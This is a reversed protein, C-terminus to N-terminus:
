EGSSVFHSCQEPPIPWDRKDPPITQGEACKGDKLNACREECLAWAAPDKMISELRASRKEAPPNISECNATPVEEWLRKAFFNLPASIYKGGDVNWGDSARWAELAALVKEDFAAADPASGRLQMYLACCRAKANPKKYICNPYASWFKDFVGTESVAPSVSPVEQARPKAAEEFSEGVLGALENTLKKNSEKEIRKQTESHSQSPIVTLGEGARESVTPTDSHSPIASLYLTYKNSNSENRKGKGGSIWSIYNKEKLADLARRVSSEGFHTMEGITTASPDCRGTKSNHCFALAALVSQETPTTDHVQWYVVKSYEYSM